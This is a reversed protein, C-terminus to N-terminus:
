ILMKWLSGPASCFRLTSLTLKGIGQERDAGAVPPQLVAIPPCPCDPHIRGTLQHDEDSSRILTQVISLSAAMSDQCPRPRTLCAWDLLSLQQNALALWHHPRSNSGPRPCVITRSMIRLLCCCCCCCNCCCLLQPCGKYHLLQSCGLLESCCCCLLLLLLAVASCSFILPLRFCCCCCCCCCCRVFPGWISYRTFILFLQGLLHWRGFFM